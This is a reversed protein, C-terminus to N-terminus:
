KELGLRPIEIAPCRDMVVTLGAREAIMRAEDNIVGIQTWLCGAGIAVAQRAIDPVADPHRFVDVMDVPVPIDQLSAYGQQGHLQRGALKPAIPIVHYGQNLLYAMVQYAPRVPNDSAGVLAITKTKRWLSAMENDNIM